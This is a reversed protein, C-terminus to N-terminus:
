LQSEMREIELIQRNLREAARYNAWLVMGLISLFPLANWWSAPGHRPRVGAGFVIFGPVFPGIYWLWVSRLLDRQRVLERRRFELCATLTLDAPLTGPTGRRYIQWMVFCTGALTLACGLRATPNKFVFLYITFVVIVVGGAIYERLNRRRIRKEFQRAKLRIEELPMPTNEVPQNQWVNRIDDPQPENPMAAEKM